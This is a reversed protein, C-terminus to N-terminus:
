IMPIVMPEITVTEGEGGVADVVMLLGHLVEDLLVAVVEANTDGDVSRLLLM